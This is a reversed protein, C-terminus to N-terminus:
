LREPTAEERDCVDMEPDDWGARKGAARLIAQQEAGTLREPVLLHQIREYVDESVLVWTRRTLPDLARPPDAELERRQQETLEIM